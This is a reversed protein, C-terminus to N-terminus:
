RKSDKRIFKQIEALLDQINMKELNDKNHKHIRHTMLFKVLHQKLESSSDIPPEFETVVM